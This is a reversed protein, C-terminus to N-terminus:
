VDSDDIQIPVVFGNARGSPRRGPGGHFKSNHNVLISVPHSSGGQHCKPLTHKCAGWVNSFSVVGWVCM